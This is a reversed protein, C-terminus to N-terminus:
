FGEIDGIVVPPKPNSVAVSPTPSVVMPVIGATGVVLAAAANLVTDVCKMDVKGTWPNTCQAMVAQYPDPSPAPAVMPGAWSSDVGVGLALVMTFVVKRIM